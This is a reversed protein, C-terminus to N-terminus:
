KSVQSSQRPRTPSKDMVGARRAEDRFDSVVKVVEERTTSGFLRGRYSREFLRARRLSLGCARWIERRAYRYLPRNGKMGFSTMAFMTQYKGFLALGYLFPIFWFTLILPLFFAAVNERTAVEGLNRVLYNLSFTLAVLGLVALVGGLLKVVPRLSQDDEVQSRAYIETMALLLVIPVLVLEVLLPFTHLNVLLEIVVAASVNRAVLSRFYREDNENSRLAAVLGTAVFWYITPKTMDATWYGLTRLVLVMVVVYVAAGALFSLIWKSVFVRAVGALSSRISGDKIAAWAIFGGVWLVLATERTTLSPISRM